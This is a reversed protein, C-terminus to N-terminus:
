SRSAAVPRHADQRARGRRAAARRDGELAERGNGAQGVLELEPRERIARAVHTGTSPSATRPWSACEGDQGRVFDRVPFSEHTTGTLPANQELVGSCALLGPAPVRLADHGRPDARSAAGGGKLREASRAEIKEAEDLAGDPADTIEKWGQRTSSSPAAPCTATPARRSRGPRSRTRSTRGSSRFRSTPSRRAGPSRCGSGTAIASSRGFSRGTTTSSRAAGSPRAAGARHLRPGSAGPRPLEREPAARRDARRDREPERGARQPDRPHARADPPVAGQRDAPRGPRANPSGHLSRLRFRAPSRNRRCM